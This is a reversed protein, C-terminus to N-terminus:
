VLIFIARYQCGLYFKDLIIAILVIAGIVVYQWYPDLRTLDIINFILGLLITGTIAGGFGGRGGSLSVGGIVAATIARLKQVWEM